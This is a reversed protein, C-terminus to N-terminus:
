PPKIVENKAGDQVDLSWLTITSAAFLTGNIEINWEM